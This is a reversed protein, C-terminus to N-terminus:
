RGSEDEMACDVNTELTEVAFWDTMTDSDGCTRTWELTMLSPAVTTDSEVADVEESRPEAMSLIMSDVMPGSMIWLSHTGHQQRGTQGRTPHTPPPSPAALSKPPLPFHADARAYVKDKNPM